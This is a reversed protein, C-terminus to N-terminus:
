SPWDFVFDTNINEAYKLDNAQQLTRFNPFYGYVLGVGSNVRSYVQTAVVYTSGAQPTQPNFIVPQLTDWWQYWMHVHADVGAFVFMGPLVLATRSITETSNLCKTKQCSRTCSGDHRLVTPNLDSMQLHKHAHMCVYQIHTRLNVHMFTHTEATILSCASTWTGEDDHWPGPWGSARCWAAMTPFLTVIAARIWPPHATSRCSLTLQWFEKMCMCLIWEHM